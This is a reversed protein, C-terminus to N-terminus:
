LRSDDVRDLWQTVEQLVVPLTTESFPSNLDALEVLSLFPLSGGARCLRLYDSWATEQNRHAKIWFQLACVQALTYDIYYFPTHYIHSQKQWFGGGELYAFGDYDRHPLYNKEIQRWAKRREAPSLEPTAYVVHQFEDVAAGYPLFRIAGSLHAFRYKEAEGNFFLEMWPWTFFEMSMSHIECAEYTPWIYESVEYNRSLYAQFAHGAEHTLVDVDHATGNFNSFIFPAKYKQLFTCYGGGAKGKKNILDMLENDYMFTFFADTEPSLEHYMIRGQEIIWDPSGKPRPNGSKFRLPEDYYKMKDMGLLRAQREILRSAIPVAHKLIQNRYHHVEEPGYQTRLLRAYGLGIFNEFGLKRAMATRTHVLEDYLTDLEQQHDSLFGFKAEAAKKRISRDPSMEFPALGTLNREEGEFWIKASAILRTYSSKLENERQLDSVIEPSFTKLTTAAIDFLQKGWQQELKSRFKSQIISRYLRHILGEFLPTTKDFYKQEEKYFADQTNITYRISAISRATSFESRLRNIESLITHQEEPHTARDFRNLLDNFQNELYSYDPRNYPITSFKM